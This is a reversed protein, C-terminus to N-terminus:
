RQSPTALEAVPARLQAKESAKVAAGVTIGDRLSDAIGQFVWRAYRGVPVIDRKELLTLAEEKWRSNIWSWTYAVDIWTPDVAEAEGIWEWDQLEKVVIECFAEIECSNPSAGPPYAKEVYISTLENSRRASVPLFNRDVNSYFGVRHFGSKSTPIYVWHEEPCKPGKRAGINVVLVSPSPDPTSHTKLGCLEIMRNLPLTSILTEYYAKDGDEFSIEKEEPDIAIARKGYRVNCQEALSRALLDLGGDPYVFTTNYGVPPADSFAGRIVLDLDVPSKYGDQPRIKEWLGATYLRHFPAFFLECLTGGFNTRLWEAMTAGNQRILAGHMIESVCRAALDSGLHRLHNQLPYPVLTGAAPLWVSSRREYRKLPVVSGILRLVWPDGGFIWHGGGLEFRYVDGALPSCSMRQTGGPCMYYSSCIGGPKEAAEYVPAGSLGAGVGTM